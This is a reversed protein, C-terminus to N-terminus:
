TPLATSISVQRKGLIQERMDDILSLRADTINAECKLAIDRLLAGLEPNDSIIREITVMPSEPVEKENTM